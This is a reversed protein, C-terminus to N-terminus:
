VFGLSFRVLWLGSLFGSSNSLACFYEVFTAVLTLMLYSCSNSYVINLVLDIYMYISLFFTRGKNM